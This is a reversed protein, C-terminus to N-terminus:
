SREALATLERLYDFPSCSVMNVEVGAIAEVDELRKDDLMILDDNFMVRPVLYIADRGGRERHVRRIADGVDAGVLLGTVNVNGGFYENEVYLPELLGRLCSAEISPTLFHSQATGAVLYARKGSASLAQACRNVAGEALARRWDDLFSRIIGIGDEFLGFDGYHESPPLRDILDAGYANSYFEDAAHVWPM